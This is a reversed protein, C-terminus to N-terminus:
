KRKQRKRQLNEVNHLVSREPWECQLQSSNPSGSISFFSMPCLASLVSIGCYISFFITVKWLSYFTFPVLKISLENKKDRTLRNYHGEM